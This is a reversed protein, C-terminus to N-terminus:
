AKCISLLPSALVSATELSSLKDLDKSSKAPSMSVALGVPIPAPGEQNATSVVVGEPARLAFTSAEKLWYSLSDNGCSGRSGQLLLLGSAVV